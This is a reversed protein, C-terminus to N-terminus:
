AIATEISQCVKRVRELEISGARGGGCVAGRVAVLNPSLGCATAIATGQLSGALVIARGTDQVEAIFEVLNRESWIDFLGGASKDFTDVLLAPCPLAVAAALIDKPSPAGATQWDAYAVAVPAPGKIGDCEEVVRCLREQWDPHHAMAAMGIKIAQVGLWQEASVQQGDAFDRLEGAAVSVPVRGSITSVIERTATPCAAGLSGRRPEKVDIWDAGGELALEAEHSDRVSVLLGPKANRPFLSVM